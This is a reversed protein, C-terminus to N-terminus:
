GQGDGDTDMEDEAAEDDEEMDFTELTTGKHDLICATRRGSRGNVALSVPGSKFSDLARCRKIPIPITTLQGAESHGDYQIEQYGLDNYGVTAIFTGGNTQPRYVIVLCEDDFFEFALVEVNKPMGEDNLTCCELLAIELRFIPGKDGYSQRVMCLFSRHESLSPAHIAIYQLFDDDKSQSPIIRERSIIDSPTVQHPVNNRGVVSGCGYSISVPRTAAGTSLDFVSRCNAILEESLTHLNRGIHDWNTTDINIRWALQDPDDLVKRAQQLVNPFLLDEPPVGLEDLSFSPTPGVFWQDISSVELGAMLYQNVELIDHLMPPPTENSPNTSAIEFRLWSIFEKFRSFERRAAAALWNALLIARKVQTLCQEVADTPIGFSPFLMRLRSWGNVEELVIHLRQCAPSLRRDSYDRLKILAEGVTSEWKQIGRESMQEGSGLFDALSESARGTVLLTTLDLVPNPKDQGFQERQKTELARLWKPGLERAGSSTESGLWASRIENVVRKIYLALEKATTSLKAFDRVQRHELLPIGIVTPRLDTQKGDSNSIQPHLYVIPRKPEKFLTTISANEELALSGLPYSGDLFFHLSGNNGATVLLSDINTDDAEDLVGDNTTRGTSPVSISAAVLDAQLSPWSSIVEPVSPVRSAHTQSGQFAFLDTASISHSDEQMNDLLPLTRLISHASGTIIQNRRFVDPPPNQVPKERSRWWVGTLKPNGEASCNVPLSREEHGDQISHITICPPNHAVAISQGDPSWDFGVVEESKSGFDVEWTKSGSVKWLSMRDHGALRTLLLLLDKDPCCASSLLRCSSPLQVATLSSFANADM